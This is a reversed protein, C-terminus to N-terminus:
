VNEWGVVQLVTFSITIQWPAIWLIIEIAPTLTILAGIAWRSTHLVRLKFHPVKVFKSQREQKTASEYKDLVTQTEKM